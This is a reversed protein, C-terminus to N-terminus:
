DAITITLNMGNDPHYNWRANFGAWSDTQMGDLARTSGMHDKVATPVKLEALFCDVKDMPEPGPDEKALVNRFSISNGEDTVNTFTSCKQRAAELPTQRNATLAFIGGGIAAVALVAGAILLPTRNPKKSSARTPHAVPSEGWGANTSVGHPAADPLETAATSAAPPYAGYQPPQDTM